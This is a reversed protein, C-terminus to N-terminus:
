QGEEGGAETRKFKTLNIPPLLIPPHGAKLTLSSIIERVFPVLYAISNMESFNKLNEINMKDTISFYGAYTIHLKVPPSDTDQFNIDVKLVSKLSMESEDMHSDTGINFGVTVGGKPVIFQPDVEFLVKELVCKDINIGPDNTQEM